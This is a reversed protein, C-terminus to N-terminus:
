MALEDDTTLQTCHRNGKYIHLSFFIPNHLHIPNVVIRPVLDITDITPTDCPTLLLLKDIVLRIYLDADDLM